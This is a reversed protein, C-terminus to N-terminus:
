SARHVAHAHAGDPFLDAARQAFRRVIPDADSLLPELVESAADVDDASAAGIVFTRLAGAATARLDPLGHRAARSIVDLSAGTAMMGAVYVAQSAIEPDDGDIMERLVPLVSPGMAAAREYEPEDASFITILKERIGTV